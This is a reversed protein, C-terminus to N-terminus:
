SLLRAAAAGTGGPQCGAERASWAAVLVLGVHLAAGGDLARWAAEGLLNKQRLTLTFLLVAAAVWWLVDRRRPGRCFAVFPVMAAALHYTRLLPAFLCAALAVAAAQAALRREDPLSRARLFWVAFLAGLAVTWVLKVARLTAEGVALVNVTHGETDLPRPQLLYDLAGHISPGAAGRVIASTEPATVSATATHWFDLLRESHLQTGFLPWPLVFVALVFAAAMAAAARWARMFPLALLFLLPTVKLAAACGLWIGARVGRGRVLAATGAAVFAGVALSLQGHTLNQALCRQFLVGFALWQWWALGGTAAAFAALSRLLWATTAGLLVAWAVRAGTDGLGELLVFPLAACPPYVWPGTGVRERCLDARGQQVDRAVDLYIGFDGHHTLLNKAALGAAVVGLVWPLWRWRPDHVIARTM